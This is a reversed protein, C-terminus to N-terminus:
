SSLTRSAEGEVGGGGGRAGAVVATRASVGSSWARGVSANQHKAEQIIITDLLISNWPGNGWGSVRMTQWVPVAISAVIPRSHFIPGRQRSAAREQSVRAEHVTRTAPWSGIGATTVSLTQNESRTTAGTPTAKAADTPRDFRAALSIETGSACISLPIFGSRMRTKVAAISRSGTVAVSMRTTQRMEVPTTRVAVPSSRKEASPPASPLLLPPGVTTVNLNDVGEGEGGGATASWVPEQRTSASRM